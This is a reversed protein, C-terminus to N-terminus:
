FKFVVGVSVNPSYQYTNFFRTGVMNASARLAYRKQRINLDLGGGVEYAFAGQSGFDTQPQFHAGGVMGHGWIEFGKPLSWRFRPGGMAQVYKENSSLVSGWTGVFEGDPAIWKGLPYWVMSLYVGNMTSEVNPLIYFRFLTYGASAQWNYNKYVSYVPPEQPDSDSSSAVALGLPNAEAVPAAPAANAAFVPTTDTTAAPAVTAAEPAVPLSNDSIAQAHASAAVLLVAACLVVSQKM